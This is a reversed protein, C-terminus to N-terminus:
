SDEGNYSRYSVVGSEEIDWLSESDAGKSEGVFGSLSDKGGLTLAQSEILQSLEGWSSLVDEEDSTGSISFSFSMETEVGTLSSGVSGWSDSGFTSMEFSGSSSSSEVYKFM